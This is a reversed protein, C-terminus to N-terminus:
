GVRKSMSIETQMLQWIQTSTQGNSAMLISVLKLQAGVVAEAPQQEVALLQGLRVLVIVLNMGGLRRLHIRPQSLFFGLGVGLGFGGGLSGCCDLSRFAGAGAAGLRGGLRFSPWSVLGHDFRQVLDENEELVPQHAKQGGASCGTAPTTSLTTAM